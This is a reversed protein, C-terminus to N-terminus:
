GWLFGVGSILHIRHAILPWLLSVKAKEGWGRDHGGIPWFMRSSRWLSEGWCGWVMDVGVEAYIGPEFAGIAPCFYVM